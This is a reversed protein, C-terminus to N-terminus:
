EIGLSTSVEPLTHDMIFEGCRTSSSISSSCFRV